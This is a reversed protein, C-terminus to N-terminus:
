AIPGSLLNASMTEACRGRSSLSQLSRSTDLVERAFAAAYGPSDQAIYAVVQELDRAASGAWVVKVM